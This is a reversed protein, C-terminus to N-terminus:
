LLGVRGTGSGAETNPGEAAKATFTAGVAVNVPGATCTAVGQANTVASCGTSTAGGDIRTTVAVGAVPRGSVPNVVKSTYTIRLTLLSALSSTSSTTVAVPAKAVSFPGGAYVLRYNSAQTGEISLGTCTTPDITYSGAGLDANITSGTSVKTCTPTGSRTVGSPLAGSATFSSSSSGYTQSGSVTTTLAAPVITLRGSSYSFDYNAASLTGQDAFVTYTGPPSTSTATTTMEPVGSVADRTDGNVFGYFSWTFSNPHGYERTVDDPVVTLYRKTVTIPSTEYTIDYDDSSLGSCPGLPATTGAPATTPVSYACTLSGALSSTTDFGVLGVPTIQLAASGGGYPITASVKLTLPAKKVKLTGAVYSIDYNGSTAGSCTTPYTGAGSYQTATTSCTPQAALNSAGQGGIFGAYTPTIAPIAEGYTIEASSATITLPAKGVTYSASGTSPLVLDDTSGSYKATLTRTDVPQQLAIKAIANGNGDARMGATTILDTGIYFEVTGLPAGGSGASVTAMGVFTEGYVPNAPQFTITTTSPRVQRSASSGLYYPSDPRSAAVTHVSGELLSRPVDCTATGDDGAFVSDCPAYVQGDLSFSTHEANTTTPYVGTAPAAAFTRAALRLMPTGSVTVLTGTLTTQSHARESTVEPAIELWSAYAGDGAYRAYVIIPNAVGTSSNLSQRQLDAQITCTATGNVVPVSECGGAGTNNSFNMVGGAARLNPDDPLQAFGNPKPSVHATFTVSQGDVITSASTSVDIKPPIPAVHVTEVPSSSPALSGSPNGSFAAYIEHSGPTPWYFSCSSFRVEIDTCGEMPAGDVFVTYTGSGTHLGGDADRRVSVSPTEQYGFARRTASLTTSSGNDYVYPDQYVVTRTATPNNGDSAKWGGFDGTAGLEFSTAPEDAPVAVTCTAFLRDYRNYPKVPVDSCLAQGDKTFDVTGSPLGGSGAAPDFELVAYFTATEGRTARAEPNEVGVEIGAQIDFKNIVGPPWAYGGVWYSVGHWEGKLYGDDAYLDEDTREGDRAAVYWQIWPYRNELENLLRSVRDLKTGDTIDGLIDDVTSRILSQPMRPDAPGTKFVYSGIGDGTDNKTWGQTPVFGVALSGSFGVSHVDLSPAVNGFYGTRIGPCAVLFCVVDQADGGGSEPSASPILKNALEGFSGRFHGVATNADRLNLGIVANILGAGPFDMQLIGTRLLNGKFLYRLAQYNMGKATAGDGFAIEAPTLFKSGDLSTYWYSGTTGALATNAADLHDEATEWHADLQQFTSVNAESDCCHTNDVDDYRFDWGYYKDSGSRFSDFVVIKKRVENLTPIYTPKSDSPIPETASGRYFLDAFAPDEYYKQVQYSISRRGEPTDTCTDAVVDDDIVDKWMPTALGDRSLRVIVTETPHETLWQQVPELFDEKVYAHQSISGHYIKLRDEGDEHRCEARVDFYRIGADLQATIDCAEGTDPQVSGCLGQTRPSSGGNYAFSDHSGPISMKNLRIDNRVWAMWNQQSTNPTNNELGDLITSAGVPGHDYALSTGLLGYRGDARATPPTAAVAALVGAILALVAAVPLAVRRTPSTTRM